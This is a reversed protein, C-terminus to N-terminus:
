VATSSLWKLRAKFSARTEERHQAANQATVLETVNWVGDAATCRAEVPFQKSCCHAYITFSAPLRMRELVVAELRVDDSVLQDVPAAVGQRWVFQGCPGDKGQWEDLPKGCVPCALASQPRYYDFVSV